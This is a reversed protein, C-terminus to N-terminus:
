CWEGIDRTHGNVQFIVMNTDMYYKPHRYMSTTSVPSDFEFSSSSSGAGFIFTPSTQAPTQVIEMLATTAHPESTGSSPPSTPAMPAVGSADAM